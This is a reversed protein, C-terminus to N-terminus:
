DDDINHSFWTLYWPICFTANNEFEKLKLFYNYNIKKLIKM